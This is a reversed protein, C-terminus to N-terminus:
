PVKPSLKIKIVLKFFKKTTDISSLMFVSIVYGGNVSRAVMCFNKKHINEIIILSFIHIAITMTPLVFLFCNLQKDIPSHNLLLLINM